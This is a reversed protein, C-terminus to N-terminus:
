VVSPPPQLRALPESGLPLGGPFDITVPLEMLERKVPRCLDFQGVKAKGELVVKGPRLSLIRGGDIVLEAKDFTVTVDVVINLAPLKVPGVSVEVYPRYTWKIPHSYLTVRRPQGPPYKKVDAYAAIEHRKNWASVAIEHVRTGLVTTVCEAVQTVVDALPMGPLKGAVERVASRVADLAEADLREDKGQKPRIGLAWSLVDDTNENM